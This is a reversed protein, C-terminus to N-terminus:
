RAGVGLSPPQIQNAIEASREPEENVLARLRYRHCRIFERGFPTVTVYLMLHQHVGVVVLERDALTQVANFQRGCVFDAMGAEGLLGLVILSEIPLRDYLKQWARGASWAGIWEGLWPGVWKAVSVIGASFALLVLIGAIRRLSPDTTDIGILSSWRNPLAFFMLGAVLIAAGVKGFLKEILDVIAHIVNTPETM